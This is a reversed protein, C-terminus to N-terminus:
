KLASAQRNAVPLLGCTLIECAHIDGAGPVRQKCGNLHLQLRIQPFRWRQPSSVSNEEMSYISTNDKICGQVARICHWKIFILSFPPSTSFEQVESYALEATQSKKMYRLCTVWTNAAPIIPCVSKLSLHTLKFSCCSEYSSIRHGHKNYVASFKLSLPRKRGGERGQRPIYQWPVPSVYQRPAAPLPTSTVVSAASPLAPNCLPPQLWSARCPPLRHNRPATSSAECSIETVTAGQTGARDLEPEGRPQLRVPLYTRPGAAAELSRERRQEWCCGRKARKTIYELPWDRGEEGRGLHNDFDPCVPGLPLSLVPSPKSVGLLKCHTSGINLSNKLFTIHM